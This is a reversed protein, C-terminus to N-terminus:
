LFSLSPPVGIFISVWRSHYRDKLGTANDSLHRLCIGLLPTRNYHADSTRNGVRSRSIIKEGFMLKVLRWRFRRAMKMNTPKDRTRFRSTSFRGGHWTAATCCCGASAMILEVHMSELILQTLMTNNEISVHDSDNLAIETGDSLIRVFTADAEPCASKVNCVFTVNAGAYVTVDTGMDVTVERDKTTVSDRESEVQPPVLFNSVNTISQLLYNVAWPLTTYFATVGGGPVTEIASGTFFSYM